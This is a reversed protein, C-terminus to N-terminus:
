CSAAIERWIRKAGGGGNDLGRGGFGLEGVVWGTMWGERDVEWM